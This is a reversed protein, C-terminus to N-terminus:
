KGLPHVNFLDYFMKSVVMSRWSKVGGLFVVLKGPLGRPCCSILHGINLNKEWSANRPSPLCPILVQLTKEHKRSTRNVTGAVRLFRLTVFFLNTPSGPSYLEGGGWINHQWKEQLLM